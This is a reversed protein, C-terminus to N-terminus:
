KRSSRSRWLVLPLGALLMLGSAPEPVPTLLFAHMIGSNRANVAIQGADNIAVSETLEWGPPLQTVDDLEIYSGDALRIAAHGLGDAFTGVIEGRNNIDKPNFEREGKKLWTLQGDQWLFGGNSSTGVIAGADNIATATGYQWNFAPNMILIFCNSQDPCQTGGFPEYAPFIPIEHIQGQTDWWVPLDRSTGVAIGNDAVDNVLTGPVGFEIWGGNGSSQGQPLNRTGSTATWIAAGGNNFGGVIGNGSSGNIGNLPTFTRSALATPGANLSKYEVNDNPFSYAIFESSGRLGNEVYINGQNDIARASGSGRLDVAWSSAITETSNGDVVLSYSLIQGSARTLTGVESMNGQSWVFGRRGTWAYDNGLLQTVAVNAAYSMSSEGVVEGSANMGYARSYNEGGALDGIDIARYDQTAAFTHASALLALILVSRQLNM